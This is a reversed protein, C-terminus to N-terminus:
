LDLPLTPSYSDTSQTIFNMPMNPAEHLAEFGRLRRPNGSKKKAGM